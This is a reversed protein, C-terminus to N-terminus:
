RSASRRAWAVIKKSGKVVTNDDLVLVPVETNGSLRKVEHRQPPNLFDPLAKWGYTRVVDFDHGADRLADHARGCAHGDGGWTGWCVYLRM